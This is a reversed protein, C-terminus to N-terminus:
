SATAACPQWPSVSVGQRQVEAKWPTAALHKIALHVDSSMVAASASELWRQEAVGLEEAVTGVDDAGAGVESTGEGVEEIAGAWLEVTSPRLWHAESQM